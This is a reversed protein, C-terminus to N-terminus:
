RGRTWPIAHYHEATGFKMEGSGGARGSGPAVTKAALARAAAKRKLQDIEKAQRRERILTARIRQGEREMLEMPYELLEEVSEKPLKYHEVVRAAFVPIERQHQYRWLAQEREDRYSAYWSNAENNLKTMEERLYAVPSLSNEANQYIVAERRAFERNAAELRNNWHGTAEEEQRKAQMQALQREYADAQQAREILWDRDDPEGDDEGDTAGAEGSADESDRADPAVPALSEDEVDEDPLDTDEPAATPSSAEPAADDHSHM